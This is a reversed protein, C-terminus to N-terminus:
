RRQQRATRWAAWRRVVSMMGRAFRAESHVIKNQAYKLGNFVFIFISIAILGDGIGRVHKFQWVIMGLVSLVFAFIVGETSVSPVVLIEVNVPASRGHRQTEEPEESM